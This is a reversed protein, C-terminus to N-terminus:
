QLLHNYKAKKFNKGGVMARIFGTKPEIAVLSASPDEPAYLVSAVDKMANKQWDLDLTTYIRLGGGFVVNQGLENVLQRSVYDLFYEQPGVNRQVGKKFVKLPTDLARNLEAKTIYGQEQMARLVTDRRDKAAKPYIVPDLASPANAIGAILAAEPLTLKSVSKHFLTRTIAEVGYSGRGYYVTNLYGTLIQDKTWRDELQWSIVAEKVKRTFTEEQTIEVYASRVFQATITSAGQVLAGAKIDTWVARAIGEVDIGHHQYFREDEIAVTADKMVQPIKASSVVIRNTAGHLEGILRGKRDYVFSTEVVAKPKLEDISPLDKSLALVTGAIGGVVAVLAIFAIIAIILLWRVFRRNGSM